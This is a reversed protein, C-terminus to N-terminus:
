VDFFVTEDEGQLRIDLRYARGDGSPAAILTARREEPVLALVPDYANAAEDAFYARTVLRKLIGRGMVSICIHPAQPANHPGPVAGPKVTHFRFWGDQDTATRGFGDFDPDLPKDQGDEPHNYRGESNAQWIEILGDPVPAGDADLLRGEIIIHAGPTGDHTLSEGGEFPLADHFFPGVTQWPTGVLLTEGM